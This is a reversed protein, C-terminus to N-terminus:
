GNPCARGRRSAVAAQGCGELKARGFRMGKAHAAQEDLPPVSSRHDMIDASVGTETPVIGCLPACVLSIPCHMTRATWTSAAQSLSSRHGGRLICSAKITTEWTKV